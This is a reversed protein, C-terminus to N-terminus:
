VMSFLDVKPECKDIVDKIMSFSDMNLLDSQDLVNLFLKKNDPFAKCFISKIESYCDGQAKFMESSLLKCRIPRKSKYSKELKSPLCKNIYSLLQKGEPTFKDIFQQSAYRRCYKYRNLFILIIKNIEL